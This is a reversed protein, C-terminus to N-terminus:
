RIKEGMQTQQYDILQNMIEHRLYQIEEENNKLKMYETLQDEYQKIFNVTNEKYKYEMYIYSSIFELLFYSLMILLTYILFIYRAISYVFHVEVLIVLLFETITLMLIGLIYKGSYEERRIKLVKVLLFHLLLILLTGPLLIFMIMQLSTLMGFDISFLSGLIGMIVIESFLGINFSLVYYFLMTSIKGVNFCKLLIVTFVVDAFCKVTVDSRLIYSILTSISCLCFCFLAINKKSSNRQPLLSVFFYCRSLNQIMYFFLANMVFKDFDM